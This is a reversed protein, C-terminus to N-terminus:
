LGRLGILGDGFALDLPETIERGDPGPGRLQWRLTAKAEDLTLFEARIATVDRYRKRYNAILERARPVPFDVDDPNLIRALREADGKAIADLYVQTFREARFAYDLLPSHIRVRDERHAEVHSTGRTGQLAFIFEKVHRVKSVKGLATRYQSLAARLADPGHLIYPELDKNNRAPDNIAAALMHVLQEAEPLTLETLPPVEITIPASVRQELPLEPGFGRANPDFATLVGTWAVRYTGSEIMRARQPYVVAGAHEHLFLSATHEGSPPVVIPPSLCANMTILWASEWSNGTQRQLTLGSAGNCNVIYLTQGAPARLTAVITAEPGRPGNTLVYSSRDTRIPAPPLAPTSESPTAPPPAEVRPAEVRKSCAALLLTLLLATRIVIPSRALSAGANRLQEPYQCHGVLARM